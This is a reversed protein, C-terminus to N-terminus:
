LVVVKKIESVAKKLKQEINAFLGCSSAPCGICAGKLELYVVGEKFAVLGVAGEHLQLEDNIEALAKKINQVNLNNM